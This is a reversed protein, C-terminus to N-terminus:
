VIIERIKNADTSQRSTYGTEDDFAMHQQSPQMHYQNIQQAMSYDGMLQGEMTM